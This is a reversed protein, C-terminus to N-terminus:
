KVSGGAAEIATKATASAPVKVVLKKKVVGKLLKVRNVTGAIIGRQKLTSITVEDGDAFQNLLDLKVATANEHISKFGRSKPVQRVLPQRGGEFRAPTKSHGSRAKQGNAGRTSYTGHGSGLGRGVVKRRKTSKPHRKLQHLKM